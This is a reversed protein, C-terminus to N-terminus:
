YLQEPAVNEKEIKDLEFKQKAPIFFNHQMIADYKLRSETRKKVLESALDLGSQTWLLPKSSFEPYNKNRWNLWYELSKGWPMGQLDHFDRM